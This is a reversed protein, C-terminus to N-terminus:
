ESRRKKRPSKMIKFVSEVYTNYYNYKKILEDIEQQSKGGNEASTIDNKYSNLRREMKDLVDKRDLKGFSNFTLSIM